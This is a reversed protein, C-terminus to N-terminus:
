NSAKVIGHTCSKFEITSEWSKRVRSDHTKTTQCSKEIKTKIDSNNTKLSLEQYKSERSKM